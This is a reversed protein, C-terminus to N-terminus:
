ALVQGRAHVTLEALTVLHHRLM